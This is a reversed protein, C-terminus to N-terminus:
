AVVYRNALTGVGEITCEVLDGDQVYAGRSVGDSREYPDAGLEVDSGLAPGGPTGCAIVTGPELTMYSSYYSVLSPVDWIINRMSNNQRLVGAVRTELALGSVDRLEDATVIWPGFPASDQYSKGEGFRLQFRGADWPIVQQDRISVDNVISYGFIHEFARERPVDRATRGIIVALEVEYDYKSSLRRDMRVDEGHAIVGTPSKLFFEVHDPKARHTEDLHDAFNAGGCILTRPVLPVALRTSELALGSSLDAHAVARSVAALLDPGREILELLSEVPNSGHAELLQGLDVVRDGVLVGPRLGTRAQYTLLRM